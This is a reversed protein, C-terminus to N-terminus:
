LILKNWEVKMCVYMYWTMDYLNAFLDCNTVKTCLLVQLWVNKLLLDVTQISYIYTSLKGKQRDNLLLIYLKRYMM